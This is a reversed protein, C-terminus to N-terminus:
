RLVLPSSCPLCVLSVVENYHKAASNIGVIVKCMLMCQLDSRLIPMKSNEQCLDTISFIENTDM